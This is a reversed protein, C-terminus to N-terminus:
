YSGKGKRVKKKPEAKEIEEIVVTTDYPSVNELALAEFAADKINTKSLSGFDRKVEDADLEVTYHETVYCRITTMIEIIDCPKQTTLHQKLYYSQDPKIDTVNYGCDTLLRKINDEDITQHTELALLPRYKKLTALAGRLVAEEHAEVDIKIGDVKTIGNHQCWTDLTLVAIDVANDLNHGYKAGNLKTEMSHGGPNGPHLMLKGMGDYDSLAIGHIEVNHCEKTKDRLITLNEPEPEFAYVISGRKSMLLTYTGHNAGIDFYVAGVPCADIM